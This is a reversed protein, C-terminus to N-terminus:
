GRSWPWARSRRARGRCRLWGGSRWGRRRGRAALRDAFRELDSGVLRANSPSSFLDFGARDFRVSGSREVAELALADWDYAFLWAARNPSPHTM